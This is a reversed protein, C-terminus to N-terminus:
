YMDYFDDVFTFFAKFSITKLILMFVFLNLFTNIKTYVLYVVSSYNIKCRETYHTIGTLEM